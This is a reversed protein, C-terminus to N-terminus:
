RLPTLSYILSSIKMNGNTNHINSGTTFKWSGFSCAEVGADTVVARLLLADCNFYTSNQKGGNSELRLTAPQVM